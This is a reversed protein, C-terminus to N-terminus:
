LWDGSQLVEKVRTPQIGCTNLHTHMLWLLWMNVSFSSIGTNKEIHRDVHMRMDKVKLRDHFHHCKISGDNTPADVPANSAVRTSLTLGIDHVFSKSLVYAVGTARVATEPTIPLCIQENCQNELGGLSDIDIEYISNDASIKAHVSEYTVLVFGGM